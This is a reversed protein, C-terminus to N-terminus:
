TVPEYLPQLFDRPMVCSAESRVFTPDYGYIQLNMDKEGPATASTLGLIQLMPAFYVTLYDQNAAPITVAYTNTCTAYSAFLATKGETDLFRGFYPSSVAEVVAGRRAVLKWDSNVQISLNKEAFAIAEDVLNVRELETLDGTAQVDATYFDTLRYMSTQPDCQIEARYIGGMVGTDLYFARISITTKGDPSHSLANDSWAIGYDEPSRYQAPVTNDYFRDCLIYNGSKEAKGGRSSSTTLTGYDCSIYYGVPGEWGCTCTPNLYIKDGPGTQDTGIRITTTLYNASLLNGNEYKGEGIPVQGSSEITEEETPLTIIQPPSSEEGPSPDSAVTGSTTGLLSLLVFAAAAILLCLSGIVAIAQLRARNM